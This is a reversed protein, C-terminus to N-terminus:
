SGMWGHTDLAGDGEYEEVIMNTRGVASLAMYADYETEYAYQGGINVIAEDSYVPYRGNTQKIVFM